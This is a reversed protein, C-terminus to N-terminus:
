FTIGASYVANNRSISFSTTEYGLGPKAIVRTGDGRVAVVGFFHIFGESQHLVGFSTGSFDIKEAGLQQSLREKDFVRSSPDQYWGLFLFFRRIEDEAFKLKGGLGLRLVSKKKKQETVPHRSIFMSFDM